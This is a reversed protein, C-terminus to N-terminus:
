FARSSVRSTTSKMSFVQSASHETTMSYTVDIAKVDKSNTLVKKEEVTVKCEDIVANIEDISSKLKFFEIIDIEEKHKTLSKILDGYQSEFDEYTTGTMKWFADANEMDSLLTNFNVGLAKGGAQAPLKIVASEEDLYLDVTTKEDSSEMVFSDAYQDNASDFYLTNTFAATEKDGYQVKFAGKDITKVIYAIPSNAGSSKLAEITLDLSEWIQGEPDKAITDVSARSCGTTMAVLGILIAAVMLLALAQQIKKVKIM